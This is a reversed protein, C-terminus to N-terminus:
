STGAPQLHRGPSLVLLVPLYRRQKNTGRQPQLFDALSFLESAGFPSKETMRVEGAELLQVPSNDPLATDHTTAPSRPM